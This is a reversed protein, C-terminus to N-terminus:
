LSWACLGSMIKIFHDLECYWADTFGQGAWLCGTWWYNCCAKDSESHLQWHNKGNQGDTGSWMEFGIFFFFVFFSFICRYYKFSIFYMYKRKCLAIQGLFVETLNCFTRFHWKWCILKGNSCLHVASVYLGSQHLM